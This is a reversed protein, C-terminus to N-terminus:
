RGAGRTDLTVIQNKRIVVTGVPDVLTAVNQGVILNRPVNVALREGSTLSIAFAEFPDAELLRSLEGELTIEDRSAVV